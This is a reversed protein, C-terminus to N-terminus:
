RQENEDKREIHANKIVYMLNKLKTYIEKRAVASVKENNNELDKKTVKKEKDQLDEEKFSFIRLYKKILVKFLREYIDAVKILFQENKM